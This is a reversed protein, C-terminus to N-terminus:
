PGRSWTGRHSLQAGLAIDARPPEGAKNACLSLNLHLAVLHSRRTSVEQDSLGQLPNEGEGAERSYAGQIHGRETPFLASPCLEAKYMPSRRVADLARKYAESAEEFRSERALARSAANGHAKELELFHLQGGEESSAALRFSGGDDVLKLDAWAATQGQVWLPCLERVELKRLQVAVPAKFDASECLRMSAKCNISAEIDHFRREPGQRIETKRHGGGPVPIARLCPLFANVADMEGKRSLQLGTSVNDLEIYVHRPSVDASAIPTIVPQAWNRVLFQLSREVSSFAAVLRQMQGLTIRGDAICPVLALYPIIVGFQLYSWKAFDFYMFNFFLQFYSARVSAFLEEVVDPKARDESDEGFVLEKRFAAEVLQNQFELGPLRMGVLALGVTGLLAWTITLVVMAHPVEGLIPLAKVPKSLEFLIPVFAALTMFSQLATAGIDEVLGAFRKTDEQVRQSAGEIHRLEQWHSMYYDNMAHRWRFTWHKTFFVSMVAVVIYTGAVESFTFLYGYIEHKPVSSEKSLAKQILDYFDGFWAIIVVDLHVQYWTVAGILIMGPWSWYIWGPRCFFETWMIIHVASAGDIETRCGRAGVYGAELAFSVALADSLKVPKYADERAWTQMSPIRGARDDHLMFPKGMHEEEAGASLLRALCREDEKMSYIVHELRPYPLEDEGLTLECKRPSSRKAGADELLCYSFSVVETLALVCEFGLLEVRARFMPPAAPAPAAAPAAAAAAAAEEAEQAEAEQKAKRFKLLDVKAQEALGKPAAPLFRLKRKVKGTKPLVGPQTRLQRGCLPSLIKSYAAPARIEAVEGVRMSKVAFEVALPLKNDGMEVTIQDAVDEIPPGDLQLTSFRVTVIDNQGPRELGKGVKQILKKVAGDRSCTNEDGVHDEPPEDDSNWAPPADSNISQTDSEAGADEATMLTISAVWAAPPSLGEVRVPIVKRAEPNSLTDYAKSIKGFKEACETCDPNKDPHYKLALAKYAKRIEMQDVGKTLGMVEYFNFGHEDQDAPHYGEEAARIALMAVIFAVMIAPGGYTNAKERISKVSLADSGDKSGKGSNPGKKKRDPEKSGEASKGKLADLIFGVLILRLFREVIRQRAERQRDLEMQAFADMQKAQLKRKPAAEKKGKSSPPGDRTDEEEEEDEVTPAKGADKKKAGAKGM